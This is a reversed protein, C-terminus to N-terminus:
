GRDAVAPRGGPADAVAVDVGREARLEAVRRRVEAPHLEGHGDAVGSVDVAEEGAAGRRAVDTQGLELGLEGEVPLRAVGAVVDPQGAERLPRPERAARVHRCGAARGARA